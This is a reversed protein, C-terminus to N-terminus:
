LQPACGTYHVTIEVPEFTHMNHMLPPSGIAECSDVILHNYRYMINLVNFVIYKLTKNNKHVYKGCSNIKLIVFHFKEDAYM